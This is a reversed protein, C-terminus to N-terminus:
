SLAAGRARVETWRVAHVFGMVADYFGDGGLRVKGGSEAVIKRLM